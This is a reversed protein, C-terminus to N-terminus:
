PPIRPCLHSIRRSATHHGSFDVGGGGHGSADAMGVATIVSDLSFVLDMLM